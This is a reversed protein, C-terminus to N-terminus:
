TERTFHESWILKKSYLNREEPRRGQLVGSVVQFLAKRCSRLARKNQFLSSSHFPSILLLITLFIVIQPSSVVGFTEPLWGTPWLSIHVCSLCFNNAYGNEKEAKTAPHQRKNVTAKRVLIVQDCCM